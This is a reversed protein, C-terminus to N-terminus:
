YKKGIRIITVKSKTLGNDYNAELEFTKGSHYGFMDRYDIDECVFDEERVSTYSEYGHISEETTICEIIAEDPFQELWKVFEKKTTM